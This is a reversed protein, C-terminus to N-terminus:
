KGMKTVWFLFAHPNITFIKDFCIILSVLGGEDLFLAFMLGRVALILVRRGGRM